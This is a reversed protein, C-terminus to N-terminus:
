TQLHGGVSVFRWVEFLLGAGIFNGRKLQVGGLRFGMCFPFRPM